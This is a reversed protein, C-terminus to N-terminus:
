GKRGAVCEIYLHFAAMEENDFIEIKDPIRKKWFLFHWLIAKANKSSIIKEITLV